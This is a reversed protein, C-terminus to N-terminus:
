VYDAPSSTSKVYNDLVSNIFGVESENLFESAISTYENIVVKYPIEPFYKFETIGLRLICRTITGLKDVEWGESLFVRINVDLGELNELSYYLLQELFKQSFKLEYKEGNSEVEGNEEYETSMSGDKYSNGIDYALQGWTQPTNSLEYQYLAQVAALRSLSKKSNSM